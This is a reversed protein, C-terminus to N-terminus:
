LIDYGSVYPEGKQHNVEEWSLLYEVAEVYDESIAHLLSDQFWIVTCRVSKGGQLTEM